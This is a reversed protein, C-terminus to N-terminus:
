VSFWRWRSRNKKDYNNGSLYGLIIPIMPLSCPLFSTLIGAILSIIPALYVYDKVLKSLFDLLSDM